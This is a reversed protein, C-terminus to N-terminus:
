EGVRYDGAPTFDDPGERWTAREGRHAGEHDEPLHCAVVQSYGPLDPRVTATCLYVSPGHPRRATLGKAVLDVCRACSDEDESDFAVGLRVKVHTGCVAFPGDHDFFEPQRGDGWPAAGFAHVTGTQVPLVPDRFGQQDRRTDYHELAAWVKRTRRVRPTMSQGLAGLARGALRIPHEDQSYPAESQRRM